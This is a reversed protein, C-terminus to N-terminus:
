KNDWSLWVSSVTDGTQTLASYILKEMKIRKMRNEKRYPPSPRVVPDGSMNRSLLCLTARLLGARRVGMPSGGWNSWLM